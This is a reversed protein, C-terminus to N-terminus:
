PSCRTEDIRAPIQFEIVGRTTRGNATIANRVSFIDTRRRTPSSSPRSPAKIIRPIQCPTPPEDNM